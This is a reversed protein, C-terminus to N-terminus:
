FRSQRWEKLGLVALLTFVLYLLATPTLGSSFFSYALCLDVGIWLAWSVTFQKAALVTAILSLIAFNIDIFEKPSSVEALFTLAASLLIFFYITLHSIERPRFVRGITGWRWYGYLAGILFVIQLASQAPYHDLFFVIGYLVSAVASFLWGIRRKKALGLVGLLSVAAASLELSM